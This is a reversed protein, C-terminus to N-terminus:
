DKYYLSGAIPRLTILSCGPIADLQEESSHSLAGNSDTSYCQKPESIYTHSLPQDVM